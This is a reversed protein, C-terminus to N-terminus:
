VLVPQSYTCRCRYLYLSATLVDVGICTCAPQLYLSYWKNGSYSYDSAKGNQCTSPCARVPKLVNSEWVVICCDYVMIVLWILCIKKLETINNRWKLPFTAGFVFTLLSCQSASEAEPRWSAGSTSCGGDQNRNIGVHFLRKESLYLDLVLFDLRQSTM